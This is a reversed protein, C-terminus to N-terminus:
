NRGTEESLRAPRKGKSMAADAGPPVAAGRARHVDEGSAAVAGALRVAERDSERARSLNASSGLGSNSMSRNADQGMASGQYPFAVLGTSTTTTMPQTNGTTRTTIGDNFRGGMMDRKRRHRRRLWVGLVTLLSLIVAILIVMLVWKWHGAWWSQNRNSSTPPAGSQGAQTATSTAASTTSTTATTPAAGAPATTTTQQPAQNNTGAACTNTYWQSILPLDSGQCVNGCLQTADSRLNVLYASQCFCALYTVQGTAPAAPPVCAAQAQSLYQCNQACTPLANPGFTLLQQATVATFTQSCLLAFCLAWHSSQLFM